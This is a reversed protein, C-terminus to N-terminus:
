RHTHVAIQLMHMRTPTSPSLCLQLNILFMVSFANAIAEMNNPLSLSILALSFAPLFTSFMPASPVQNDHARGGPQGTVSCVRRQNCISATVAQKRRLIHGAREKSEQGAEQGHRNWGKCELGQQQRLCCTHDVDLETVEMRRPEGTTNGPWERRRANETTGLHRVHQTSGVLDTIILSANRTQKDSGGRPRRDM